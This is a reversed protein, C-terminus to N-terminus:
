KQRCAVPWVVRTGQPRLRGDATAYPIAVTRETEAPKPGAERYVVLPDILHSDPAPLAAGEKQYEGGASKQAGRRPYAYGGM